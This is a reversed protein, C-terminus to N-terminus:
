VEQCKMSNQLQRLKFKMSGVATILLEGWMLTTHSRNARISMRVRRDDHMARNTKQTGEWIACVCVIIAGVTGHSLM